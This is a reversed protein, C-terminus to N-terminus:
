IVIENKYAEFDIQRFLDVLEPDFQSGKSNVLEEIAEEHTMAKRHPRDNTMADYADCVTLIRAELPISNSKLRKPYGTGNFWEHHYLVAEMIDEFAGASQLIRYGVEAHRNIEHRDVDCLDKTKELTSYDIAVKGVDHMLGIKVYKDVVSQDLGMLTAMRKMLEGVSKAHREERPHKHYLAKLVVDLVRKRILHSSFLKSKYMEAEAHYLTKSISHSMDSKLSYGFSISMFVDKISRLNTEQNLKDILSEVEQKNTNTLLIVFEDGSLRAISEIGRCVSQIIGATIVLLKDGEEHGYVDNILKLGNVDAFIIAIPLNEEVNVEEMHEFFYTRNHLSTLQDYYVYREVQKTYHHEYTMDTMSIINYHSDDINNATVKMYKDSEGTDFVFTQTESNHTTDFHEKYNMLAGYEDRKVLDFVTKGVLEGSFTQGAQDNLDKISWNKDVILCPTPIEKFLHELLLSNGMKSNLLDDYILDYCDSVVGEILEIHFKNLATSDYKSLMEKILLKKDM